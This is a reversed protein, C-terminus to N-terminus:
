VICSGELKRAAGSSAVILPHFVTGAAVPLRLIDVPPVLADVQKARILRAHLEFQLVRAPSEGFEVLRVLVDVRKMQCAPKM